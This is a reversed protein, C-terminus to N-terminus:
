SPCESGSICKGSSWKCEFKISDNSWDYSNECGSSDTIVSCGVPAKHRNDCEALVDTSLTAILTMQLTFFLVRLGRGLGLSNPKIFNKKQLNKM